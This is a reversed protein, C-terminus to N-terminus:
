LYFINIESGCTSKFHKFNVVRGFVHFKCFPPFGVLLQVAVREQWARQNGPSGRRRPSATCSGRASAALPGSTAGLVDSTAAGDGPAGAVLVRALLGLRSWLSEWWPQHLHRGHGAAAAPAPLSCGVPGPTHPTPPSPVTTVPVPLSLSPSGWLWRPRM